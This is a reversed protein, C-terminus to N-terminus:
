RRKTAREGIAQIAWIVVGGLVAAAFSGCHSNRRVASPLPEASSLRVATELEQGPLNQQTQASELSDSLAGSERANTGDGTLSSIFREVTPSLMSVFFLVTLAASFAIAMTFMPIIEIAREQCQGKISAEEPLPSACTARLLAYSNLMNPLFISIIFLIGGVGIRIKNRYKDNMVSLIQLIAGFFFLVWIFVAEYASIVGPEPNGLFFALGNGGALDLVVRFVGLLVTFNVLQVTLYLRKSAEVGGTRCFAIVAVIFLSFFYLAIYSRAFGGVAQTRIEAVTGWVCRIILALLGAGILGYITATFLKSPKRRSQVSM